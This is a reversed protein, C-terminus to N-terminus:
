EQVIFDTFQTHRNDFLLQVDGTAGNRNKGIDLIAANDRGPPAKTYYGERWLLMVVDADQEISGSDRLHSIRPRGDTTDEPKRSLQSVVMVPIDLEKAMAKINASIHGTELQRGQSAYSRSNLLQLYDIMIFGVNHRKKMRRARARLDMVDLGGSDDVYIPANKIERGAENLLTLAENRGVFGRMVSGMEVKARSCLLRTILADASMECSFIGVPVPARVPIRGGADTGLALNECINMALSTKGMSPRAALVIMEAARMGFLKNDINKFGTPLGSLGDSRNLLSGIRALTADTSKGWDMATERTNGEGIGLIEQETEALILETARDQSQCKATANQAATAIRRLMLKDKLIGVYYDTHATVPASDILQGIYNIGGTKALVGDCKLQEAVTVADVPKGIGNMALIADFIIRNAPVHFAEPVLGAVECIELILPADLFIAGLVANEAEANYLPSQRPSASPVTRSTDM